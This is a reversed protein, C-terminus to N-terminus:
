QLCLWQLLPCITKGLILCSVELVGLDRGSSQECRRCFSESHAVAQAGKGFSPQTHSARPSCRELSHWKLDCRTSSDIKLRARELAKAIGKQLSQVSEHLLPRWREMRTGEDYGTCHPTYGSSPGQREACEGLENLAVHLHRLLGEIGNMEKCEIKGGQLIIGEVYHIAKQLSCLEKRILESSGNTASPLINLRSEIHLFLAEDGTFCAGCGPFLCDLAKLEHNENTARDDFGPTDLITYRPSQLCHSQLPNNRSTSRRRQCHTCANTISKLRNVKRIFTSNGAGTVGLVM